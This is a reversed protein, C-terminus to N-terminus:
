IVVAPNDTLLTDECALNRESLLESLSFRIRINVRIYLVGFTTRIFRNAPCSYLRLHLSYVHPGALSPSPPIFQSLLTPM